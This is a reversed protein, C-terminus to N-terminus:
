VAPILILRCNFPLCFLESLNEFDDMIRSVTIATQLIAREEFATKLEKFKNEYQKIKGDVTSM